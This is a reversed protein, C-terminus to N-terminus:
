WLRINSGLGEGLLHLISFLKQADNPIRMLIIKGDNLRRSADVISKVGATDLFGLRELDLFIDGPHPVLLNLTDSLRHASVIDLDGSIKVLRKNIDIFAKFDELM